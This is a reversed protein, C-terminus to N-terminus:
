LAIKYYSKIRNDSWPTIIKDGNDSSQSIHNGFNDPNFMDGSIKHVRFEGSWDYIFTPEGEPDVYLLGNSKADQLWGDHYDVATLKFGKEKLYKTIIFSSPEMNNHALSIGNSSKFYSYYPKYVMKDLKKAREIGIVGEKIHSPLYIDDDDMISVINCTDPIFQTADRFVAGTSTYLEGTLLDKYNNILIIKKHEPLDIEDLRQEVPSNNYILLTHNGKYDQDIFTKVLRELLTHRGFTCCLCYVEPLM